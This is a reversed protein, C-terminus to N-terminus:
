LLVGCLLIVIPMDLAPSGILCHKQPTPKHTAKYLLHYTTIAAPLTFEQTAM